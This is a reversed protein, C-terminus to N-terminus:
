KFSMGFNLQPTGDKSKLFALELRFESEVARDTRKMLSVMIKLTILLIKHFFYFLFINHCVLRLFVEYTM